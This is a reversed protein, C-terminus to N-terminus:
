IIGDNFAKTCDKFKNRYDRDYLCYKPQKSYKCLCSNKVGCTTKIKICDDNCNIKDIINKDNCNNTCTSYNDYCEKCKDKNCVSVGGYFPEQKSCNCNVLLLLVIVILVATIMKWDM